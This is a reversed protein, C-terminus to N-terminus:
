SRRTQEQTKDTRTSSNKMFNSIKLTKRFDLFNKVNGRRFIDQRKHSSPPFHPCAVASLMIRGMGKAHQISVYV